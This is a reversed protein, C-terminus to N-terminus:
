DEVFKLEIMLPKYTIFQRAQEKLVIQLNAGKSRQDVSAIFQNLSVSVYEDQVNELKHLDITTKYMKFDAHFKIISEILTKMKSDETPLNILMKYVTTRTMPTDMLFDKSIKLGELESNTRKVLRKIMQFFVIVRYLRRVQNRQTLKDYLSVLGSLLIAIEHGQFQSVLQTDINDM